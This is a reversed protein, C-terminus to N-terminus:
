CINEKRKSQKNIIELHKGLISVIISLIAIYILYKDINRPNEFWKYIGIFLLNFIGVLSVFITTKLINTKM